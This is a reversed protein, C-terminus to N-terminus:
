LKFHRSTPLEERNKLTLSGQQVSLIYNVNVIYSRHCKVFNPPLELLIQTLKGRVFHAKGDNSFAHLYHDDSKIYMLDNLYLKTKDKHLIFGESVINKVKELEEITRIHIEEIEDKEAQIEKKEAQIVDNEAQIKEKQAQIEKKEAELRRKRYDLKKWRMFSYLALLFVAFLLIGFVLRNKYFKDKFQELASIQRDKEEVQYKVNIDHIAANQEGDKISSDLDLYLQQYKRRDPQADMADYSEMLKKYLLRTAKARYKPIPVQEAKRFWEIAEPYKKELFYNNGYNFYVAFLEYKDRSEFAFGIAQDFYKRAASFNRRTTELAGLNYYLKTKVVPNDTQNAYYLGKLFIANANDLVTPNSRKEFDFEAYANKALENLAFALREKSGTKQAFDYYEDLFTTGYKDYNEQSSIVKHIELALDNAPEWLNMKEFGAKSMLYYKLALNEQNLNAYCKGLVFLNGAAEAPTAPVIKAAKSLYAQPNEEAERTLWADLKQAFLLPASLLFVVILIKKM